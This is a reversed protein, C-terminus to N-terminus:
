SMNFMKFYKRHLNDAPQQNPQWKKNEGINPIEDDWNVNMNKQNPHGLWRGSKLLHSKGDFGVIPSGM